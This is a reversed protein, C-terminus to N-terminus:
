WRPDPGIRYIDAAAGQARNRKSRIPTAKCQGSEALDEADDRRNENSGSGRPCTSAGSGGQALRRTSFFNM